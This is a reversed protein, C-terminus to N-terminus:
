WALFNVGEFVGPGRENAYGLVWDWGEGAGESGPLCHVKRYLGPCARELLGFLYDAMRDVAAPDHEGFTREGDYMEPCVGHLQDYGVHHEHMVDVVLRLAEMPDLTGRVLWDGDTMVDVGYKTRPRKELVTSNTM